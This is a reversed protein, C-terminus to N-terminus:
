KRRAKGRPPIPQLPGNKKEYANVYDTLGETMVEKILMREWYAILRLKEMTDSTVIVTARTEDSGLDVKPRGRGRKGTEAVPAAASSAIAVPAPQEQRTLLESFDGSFNKTKAM